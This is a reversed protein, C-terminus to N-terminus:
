RSIWNTHAALKHDTTNTTVETLGEM